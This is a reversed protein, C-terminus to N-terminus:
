ADADAGGDDPHTGDPITHGITKYLAQGLVAVAAISLVISSVIQVISDPIGTIMGLVVAAVLGLLTAIGAAVSQTHAKSWARQKAIQVIAVQALAALVLVAGIPTLQAATSITDIM